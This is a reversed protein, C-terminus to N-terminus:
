GVRSTAEPPPLQMGWTPCGVFVVDYDEIRDIRTKLAPLRGTENERAVQRVTAQYDAPHPTELELAVITGGVVDHIIPVVAKTNNTRTLCVVLV